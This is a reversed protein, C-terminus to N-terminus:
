IKEFFDEFKKRRANEGFKEHGNFTKTRYIILIDLSIPIVNQYFIYFM